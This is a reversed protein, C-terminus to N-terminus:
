SERRINWGKVSATMPRIRERLTPASGALFFAAVIMSYPRSLEIRVQHFGSRIEALSNLGAETVELPDERDFEICAQTLGRALAENPTRFYCDDLAVAVRFKGPENGVDIAACEEPKIGVVRLSDGRFSGM